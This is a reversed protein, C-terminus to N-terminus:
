AETRGARRKEKEFERRREERVEPYYDIVVQFEGASQSEQHNSFTYECFVHYTVFSRRTQTVACESM